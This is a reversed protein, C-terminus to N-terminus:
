PNRSLKSESIEGENVAWDFAEDIWGAVLDSYSRQYRARLAIIREHLAPSVKVNLRRYGEPMEQGGWKGM